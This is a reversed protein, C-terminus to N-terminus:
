KINSVKHLGHPLTFYLLSKNHSIMQIRRSKVPGRLARWLLDVAEMERQMRKCRRVECRRDKDM